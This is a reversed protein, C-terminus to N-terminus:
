SRAHVSITKRVAAQARKALLTAPAGDARVAVLAIHAFLASPAADARVAALARCALLAAPGADARCRASLSSYCASSFFFLLFLVSMLLYIQLSLLWHLSPGIIFFVQAM